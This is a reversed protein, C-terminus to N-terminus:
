RASYKNKQQYEHYPKILHTDPRQQDARAFEAGAAAIIGDFSDLRVARPSTGPQSNGSDDATMGKRGTSDVRYWGFRRLDVQMILKGSVMLREIVDTCADVSYRCPADTPYPEVAFTRAHLSM